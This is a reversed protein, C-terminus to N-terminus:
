DSVSQMESAACSCISEVKTRRKVVHNSVVHLATLARGSPSRTSGGLAATASIAGEM